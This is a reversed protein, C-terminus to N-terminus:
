RILIEDDNKRRREDPPRRSVMYTKVVAVRRTTESVDTRRRYKGTAGPLSKAVYVTRALPRNRARDRVGNKDKKKKGTRTPDRACERGRRRRRYYSSLQSRSRGRRRSYSYPRFRARAWDRPFVRARTNPQMITKYIHTCCCRVTIIVCHGCQVGGRAVTYRPLQVAVM